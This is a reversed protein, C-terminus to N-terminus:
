SAGRAQRSPDRATPSLGALVARVAKRRARNYRRRHLTLRAGPLWDAVDRILRRLAARLPDDVDSM